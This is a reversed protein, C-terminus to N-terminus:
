QFFSSGKLKQVVDAIEKKVLLSRPDSESNQQYWVLKFREEVHHCFDQQFSSYIILVLNTSNSTRHFSLRNSVRTFPSILHFLMIHDFPKEAQCFLRFNLVIPLHKQPLKLHGNLMPDIFCKKRKM